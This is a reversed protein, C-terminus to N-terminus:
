LLRVVPRSASATIMIGYPLRFVTQTRVQLVLPQVKWHQRYFSRKLLTGRVCGAGVV